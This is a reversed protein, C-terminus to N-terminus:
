GRATGAQHRDHGQLPSEARVRSTGTRDAGRAGASRGRWTAARGQERRDGRRTSHGRESDGRQVLGCSSETEIRASDAKVVEWEYQAEKGRATDSNEPLSRIIYIHDVSFLIM